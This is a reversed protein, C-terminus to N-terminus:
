QKLEMARRYAENKPIDLMLAAQKAADKVSMGSDMLRTLMEDLGEAPTEEIREGSVIIVCEGRPTTSGAVPHMGSNM